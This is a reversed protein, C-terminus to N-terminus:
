AIQRHWAYDRQKADGSENAKSSAPTSYSKASYTIVNFALAFHTSKAFESFGRHIMQMAGIITCVTNPTLPCRFPVVEPHFYDNTFENAFARGM